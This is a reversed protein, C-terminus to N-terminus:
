ENKPKLWANCTRKTTGRSAHTLQERAGRAWNTRVVSALKTTAINSLPSKSVFFPSEFVRRQTRLCGLESLHCFLSTIIWALETTRPPLQMEFLPLLVLLSRNKTEASFLRLDSASAIKTLETKNAARDVDCLCILGPFRCRGSIRILSRLFPSRAGAHIFFSTHSLPFLCKKGKEPRFLIDFTRLPFRFRGALLYCFDVIKM